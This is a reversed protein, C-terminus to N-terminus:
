DQKQSFQQWAKILEAKQVPDIYKLLYQTGIAAEEFEFSEAEGDKNMVVIKKPLPRVKELVDLFNVSTNDITWDFFQLVRCEDKLGKQTAIGDEAPVVVFSKDSMFQEFRQRNQETPEELLLSRFNLYALGIYAVVNKHDDGLIPRLADAYDIYADIAKSYNGMSEYIDGLMAKEIEVMVHGKGYIATKVDMAKKNYSIAKDYEKAKLYAQSLNSYLRGTMDNNETYFAISAKLAELLIEIEKQHDGMIGYTGAINNYISILSSHNEGYIAKYIEVAQNFCDIAQTYDKLAHYASGMNGLVQAAEKCQRGYVNTYTQLAKQAFELAKDAQDAEAMYVSMSNYDNAVNTSEKGYFLIDLELAKQMYGYGEEVKNLRFLDAALNSYSTAIEPHHDGYVKKRIDFAKLEYQYAEKYHHIRSYFNSINSLAIAVYPHEEGHLKKIIDLSREYWSLATDLSDIDLYTTGFANSLEAMSFSNEGKCDLIIPLALHYYELAKWPHGTKAELMGLSVYSDSIDNCGGGAGQRRIELAKEHYIRASDIADTKRFLTGMNSLCFALEKSHEGFRLSRVTASQRFYQFAKDFQGADVAINALDNLCYAVDECDDGGRETACQLAQLAIREARDFDCLHESIFNAAQLMWKVNMPPLFARRELYYAASDNEFDSAHITHKYYYDQALDNLKATGERIQEEGVAISQRGLEIQNRAIKEREEFDGKSHILAEAKELEANEIAQAIQQNKESINKYDTRAYIDAMEDVLSLFKEYNEGLLLLKRAYDDESLRKEEKLMELERSDQDYKKQARQYAKEEIIKKDEDLQQRSVMVIELPVKSSYGYKRGRLDKDVLTYDKKQVNGIMYADGEKKGPLNFSFKGSTNSIVSNPAGLVTIVVGDLGQSKKDPREITRVQGKQVQAISASPMLTSCIGVAMMVRCIFVFRKM